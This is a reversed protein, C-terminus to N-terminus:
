SYTLIIALPQFYPLRCITLYKQTVQTIRLIETTDEHLHWNKVRTNLLLLSIQCYGGPALLVAIM